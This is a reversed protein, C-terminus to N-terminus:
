LESIKLSKELFELAKDPMGQGSLQLSRFQYLEYLLKIYGKEVAINQVQEIVEAAETKRNQDYLLLGLKFGAIAETESEYIKRAISIAARYAKDAKEIQNHLSYVEGLYFHATAQDSQGSSANIIKKSAEALSDLQNNQFLQHLKQQTLSPKLYLNSQALGETSAVLLLCKIYFNFQRM